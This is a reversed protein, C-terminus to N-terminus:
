VLVKFAKRVRRLCMISGIFPKKHKDTKALLPTLPHKQASTIYKNRIPCGLICGLFIYM